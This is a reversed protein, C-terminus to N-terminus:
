VMLGVSKVVCFYLMFCYFTLKILAVIEDDDFGWRIEGSLIVTNNDLDVTPYFWYRDSGIHAGCRNHIADSVVPELTQYLKEANLNDSCVIEARVSCWNPM